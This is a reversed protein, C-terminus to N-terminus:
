NRCVAANVIKLLSNNKYTGKVKLLANLTDLNKVDKTLLHTHSESTNRAHHLGIQNTNSIRSDGFIDGDLEIM